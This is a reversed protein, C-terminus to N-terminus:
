DDEDVKCIIYTMLLGGFLIGFLTTFGYVATEALVSKSLDCNVEICICIILGILSILIFTIITKM